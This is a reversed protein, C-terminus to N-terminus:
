AVPMRGCLEGIAALDGQRALRQVQQSFDTFAPDRAQVARAWDMLDSIGGIDLLRQVQELEARSLRPLPSVARAPENAAPNTALHLLRGLLHRLEM